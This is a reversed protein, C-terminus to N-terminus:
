KLRTIECETREEARTSVKVAKASGELEQWGDGDPLWGQKVMEDIPFKCASTANDFDFPRTMYITFEVRYRRGGSEKRPRKGKPHGDLTPAAAPKTVAACLGSVGADAERRPKTAPTDLQLQRLIRDRFRPNCENLNTGM